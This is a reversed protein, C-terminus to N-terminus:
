VYLQPIKQIKICIIPNTLRLIAIIRLSKSSKKYNKGGYHPYKSKGCCKKGDAYVDNVWKIRCEPCGLSEAADAVCLASLATLHTPDASAEPRLLLSFYVGSEAPSFFSRGLRGRGESQCEAVFLTGARAGRKAECLLEANTSPCVSFARVDFEAGLRRSLEAADFHKM